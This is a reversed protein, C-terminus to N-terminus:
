RAEAMRGRLKTIQESIMAALQRNDGATALERAAEAARLADAFRGAAECAAAMTLLATPDRQGSVKCAETALRVAEDPNGPTGGASSLLSALKVLAHYCGPDAKLAARLEAAAQEPRGQRLSATALAVQIEANEPSMKAAEELYRRGQDFRGADCLLGGLHVRPLPDGPLMRIAKRYHEAAQEFEGLQGLAMALHFECRGRNPELELASVFKTCAERLKGERGLAVGWREYAEASRPNLELAKRFAEEALDYDGYFVNHAGADLYSDENIFRERIRRIADPSANVFEPINAARDPATFQSLLVGPTSNGNEDIHTLFLQTYATNAKSSFVLWKGNPSWSHWSNMRATNCELRRAEGGEAAVIHLESDPQLLMFNKARCFVIWKGDPSYRAFYNSMGNHSAGPVPEATGGKGDNFGVRYLDYRITAKGDIFERCDEESLLVRGPQPPRRLQHKRARAFVIFKGDPSWSANSQVFEPDDAGPLAAFQKTRCDHYALIGQIPFFLQSFAPDPRPVFVSLDKVTSVVYRGDPSIQSLLGFTRQKDERRFDSWTFVSERDLTIEEAVPRVIYAGKDNAYDVDMGMAAGDRSFSHCNACVPLKELVVPPPERSSIPGFRWRIHRAPDRVAAEFPLGVERYFIPAGVEDKSTLFSLRAASLIRDQRARDVGVITVTAPSEVTRRKMAEWVPEEPTWREALCASSIPQSGDAFAVTVAWLNSGRSPDAWCFTPPIIEPPFVTGDAPYDVRLQGYGRAEGYAALIQEVHIAPERRVIWVVTAAILSLVMAGM